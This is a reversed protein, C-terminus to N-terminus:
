KGEMAKSISFAVEARFQRHSLGKYANQHKLLVMVAELEAIRDAAEIMLGAETDFGGEEYDDAWARLIEVLDSM